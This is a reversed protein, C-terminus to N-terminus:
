DNLKVFHRLSFERQKKELINNIRIRLMGLDSFVRHGSYFDLIRLFHREVQLIRSIRLCNQRSEPIKIEEFIKKKEQM